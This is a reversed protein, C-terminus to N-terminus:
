LSSSRPTAQVPSQCSQSAGLRELKEGWRVLRIGLWSAGRRSLRLTGSRDDRAERLLREIDAKKMLEAQRAQFAAYHNTPYM